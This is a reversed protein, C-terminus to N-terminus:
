FVYNLEIVYHVNLAISDLIWGDDKLENISFGKLSSSERGVM